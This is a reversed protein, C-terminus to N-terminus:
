CPRNSPFQQRAPRKRPRTCVNNGGTPAGRGKVKGCRKQKLFMLYALAWRRQEETLSEAAVPQMVQREHLQQLETEVAERGKDGFLKLEKRMSVQTLLFGLVADEDEAAGDEHHHEGGEVEDDPVTEVIVAEVTAHTVGNGTRAQGAPRANKETKMYKPTPPDAGGGACGGRQGAAPGGLATTAGASAFMSSYDVRQQRRLNYRHGPGENGLNQHHDADMAEGLPEEEPEDELMPEDPDLELPHGIEENDAFMADVGDANVAEDDMQEQAVGEIEFGNIDENLDEQEYDAVGAFHDGVDEHDAAEPEGDVDDIIQWLQDLFLIRGSM